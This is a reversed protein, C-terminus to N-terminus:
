GLGLRLSAGALDEPVGIARLIRSPGGDASSCASGSSVALVGLAGALSGAPVGAFSVNLNGPLRPQEAGNLRVGDLGDQLRRWLRDRLDGVRASEQDLEAAAIRCAEGFGAILPAPLTGPRLGREQGGGHLLPAVTARPERRRLWLAGVGKPGYLKHASCSLLDVPLRRVDLPIRGVAQAADTHLLVGRARCAAGIGALPQITGIENQAAIVSVLVTDDRLAAAVDDARVLGDPGAAVVTAEWGRRVLAAVPGAVADHELNTTVLHRGRPALAEAAGLIALNDSETAGSTFVIERPEAGLLAAVQERALEVVRAAAWGYAHGSSAPNGWHERQVRELVALVRPDPPTTAHHDLYVPTRVTM